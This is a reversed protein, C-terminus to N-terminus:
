PASGNSAPHRSRDALEARVMNLIGGHALLTLLYPPLAPISVVEAGVSAMGQELDLVMIEGTTAADALEPSVVVPLGQNIALRFFARAVSKAVIAVFGRQKLSLVAQYRSSGSGLGEGAVLVQGREIQATIHEGLGELAHQGIEAEDIVQLYQGPYILDTNVGDPLRLVPGTIKM